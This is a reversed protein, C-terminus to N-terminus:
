ELSLVFNFKRPPLCQSDDCAMWEVYGRMKTKIAKRLHITQELSLSKEFFKLKAHLTEDFQEIRKGIEKWPSASTVLPNKDLVVRTPIPGEGPNLAYIHWKDKITAKLTITYTTPNVQRVTPVWTVPDHKQAHSVSAFWFGLFCFLSFRLFFADM